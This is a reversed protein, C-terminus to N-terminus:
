KSIEPLRAFLMKMDSLHGAFDSQASEELFDAYGEACLCSKDAQRGKNYGLLYTAMEEDMDEEGGMVQNIRNLAAISLSGGSGYQRVVARILVLASATLGDGDGGNLWYKPEDGPWALKPPTPAPRPQPPPPKPKPQATPPQPQAKPPQQPQPQAKPPQKATTTTPPPPKAAQPQAKPPQAKPPQKAM